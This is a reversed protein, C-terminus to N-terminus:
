PLRCVLEPHKGDITFSLTPTRKAADIPPGYLTLGKIATIQEYIYVALTHEYIQICNMAEILRNRPDPSEGFNALYDVAASVGAIAAHNLTGTEIRFPAQQDQTRLRDPELEDLIGSKSYLIGVHPGYFKYASCILFDIDLEIVDLSFHPAFHVADVLLWAGVNKSLKRILRIDNVTGLANSAMGVAVLRTSVNLKASLDEYDLTGDKKLRVEDVQIGSEKLQIWPGRNAEHDLQTVLIQDGKKFSRRFANSLAYALTTMNAGLSIQEADLAGLFLAMKQRATHLVQDTEESTVFFGHTNANRSQYYDVISDIVTAPVQTGGPGDFYALPYGNYERTLAPFDDRCKILQESQQDSLIM